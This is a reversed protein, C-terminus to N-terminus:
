QGQRDLIQALPRNQQDRTMLKRRERSRLDGLELGEDVVRAPRKQELGAAPGLRKALPKACEGFLGPRLIGQTGQWAAVGYEVAQMVQGVRHAELTEVTAAARAHEKRGLRQAAQPLQFHDGGM